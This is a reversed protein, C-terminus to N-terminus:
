ASDISEAGLVPRVRKLATTGAAAVTTAAGTTIGRKPTAPGTEVDGVDGTDSEALSRHM